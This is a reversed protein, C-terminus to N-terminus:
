SKDIKLLTLFSVPNLIIIQEYEGLGLLHEDGSVIYAAGGTAACELVRNDDPDAEIVDLTMQPEVATAVTRMRRVFAAIEDESVKLYRRVQPYALVRELEAILPLSTVVEFEDGEWRRVIEAPPGGPSLLASIIVNTDLVVLM